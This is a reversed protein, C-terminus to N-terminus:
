VHARGIQQVTQNATVNIVNSYHVYDDLTLKIIHTGALVNTLIYPTTYGTDTGDLFIKAGPPDTTIAISGITYAPYYHLCGSTLLLVAIILFFLMLYKKKKFM